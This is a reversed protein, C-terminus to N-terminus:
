GALHAGLIHQVTKVDQASTLKIKENNSNIVTNSFSGHIRDHGTTEIFDKVNSVNLGSGALIAIQSGFKIQLAKITDAANVVTDEGGSTLVETVGMDVLTQFANEIDNVEDIARHFVFSKGRTAGLITQLQQVNIVHDKTLAGFVFGQVSQSKFLEIQRLMIAMDQDSYQFHGGRNRIMIHIPINSFSRIAELLSIEPTLGGQFLDACLELRDAGGEIANKASELNDVCVELM